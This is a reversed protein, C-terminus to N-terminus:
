FQWNLEVGGLIDRKEAPYSRVNEFGANFLNHVRAFVGIRNHWFRYRAALDVQSHSKM